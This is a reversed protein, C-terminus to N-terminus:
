SIIYTVQGSKHTFATIEGKTSDAMMKGYVTNGIKPARELTKRSFLDISKYREGWKTTARPAYSLNGLKIPGLPGSITLDGPDTLNHAAGGYVLVKADPHKDTIKVTESFLDDGVETGDSFISGSVPVGHIRLGAAMAFLCKMLDGIIDKSMKNEIINRFNSPELGELVIDTFGNVRALPLIALAFLRSTHAKRLDDFSPKQKELEVMLASGSGLLRKLTVGPDLPIHDQIIAYKELANIIEDQHVRIWGFDQSSNEDHIEGISIVKAEKLKTSVQGLFVKPELTEKTTYSWEGEKIPRPRDNDM